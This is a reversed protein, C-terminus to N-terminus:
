LSEKYKKPTIGTIKKFTRVFTKDTTFGCFQALQMNNMDTKKLLAKACEIRVNAIYDVPSLGLNKKFLSFVTQRSVDFHEALMSVSLNYDNYNNDIYKKYINVADCDSSEKKKESVRKCLLRYKNKLIETFKEEDEIVEELESYLIKGSENEHMYAAVKIVTGFMEYHLLKRIRGNVNMKDNESIIKKLIGDISNFDGKEVLKIMQNEMEIPYYYKNDESLHEFFIVQNEADSMKFDLAELAERYGKKVDELRNKVSSIGINASIGLQSEIIEMYEDFFDKLQDALAANDTNIVAVMGNYEIEYSVGLNLTEIMEHFINMMAFYLLKTDNQRNFDGYKNPLAIIVLFNAYPLEIGYKELRSQIYQGKKGEIIDEFFRDKNLINQMYIDTNLKENEHKINNFSQSIVNFEDIRTHKKSTHLSKGEIEEVIDNIPKYLKKVIIGTGFVAMLMVIMSIILIMNRTNKLDQMYDSEPIFYLLLWENNPLMSSIAVEGKHKDTAIGGALIRAEKVYQPMETITEDSTYLLNQKKDFFMMVKNDIGDIMDLRKSVKNMDLIVFIRACVYNIENDPLSHTYILVPKEGSYEKETGPYYKKYQVGEILKYSSDKEEGYFKANYIKFFEESNMSKSKNIVTNSEPFYLGADDIYINNGICSRIYKSIENIEGMSQPYTRNTVYQSAKGIIIQEGINECQMKIKSLENGASYILSENKLNIQESFVKSYKYYSFIEFSMIPVIAVSLICIVLLMFYKNFIYKKMRYKGWEKRM